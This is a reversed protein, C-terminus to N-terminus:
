DRAEKQRRRVAEAIKVVDIKTEDPMVALQRIAEHLDFVTRPVSPRAILPNMTGMLVEASHERLTEIAAATVENTEEASACRSATNAATLATLRTLTVAFFVSLIELGEELEAVRKRLEEM